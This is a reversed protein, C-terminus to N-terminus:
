RTLFLSGAVLGNNIIGGVFMKSHFALYEKLPLVAEADTLFCVSLLKKKFVLGEKDRHKEKKGM